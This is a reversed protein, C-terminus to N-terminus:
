SHSSVQDFVFFPSALLQPKIHLTMGQAAAPAAGALAAGLLACLALLKLAITRM